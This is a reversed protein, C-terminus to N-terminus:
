VLCINSPSLQRLPLSPSPPLSLPLPLPLSLSVPLSPSLYLSRALQNQTGGGLWGTLCTRPDSHTGSGIPVGIRDSHTSELM